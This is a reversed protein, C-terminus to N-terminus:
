LISSLSYFHSWQVDADTPSSSKDPTRSAWHHQYCWDFQTRAFDASSARNYGKSPLSCLLTHCVLHQLICVSVCVNLTTPCCVRPFLWALGAFASLCFPSFLFFSLWVNALSEFYFPLDSKVKHLLSVCVCMCLTGTFLILKCPEMQRSGAIPRCCQLHIEITCCRRCYHPGCHAWFILSCLLRSTCRAVTGTWSEIRGNIM